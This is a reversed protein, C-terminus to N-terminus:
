KVTNGDPASRGVAAWRFALEEIETEELPTSTITDPLPENSTYLRDPELWTITSTSPRYEGPEPARPGAPGFPAVPARPGAPGAPTSPAAPM